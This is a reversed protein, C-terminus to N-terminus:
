TEDVQDDCDNDVGDGAVEAADPSVDPDDDDCDGCDLVYNSGPLDCSHVGDGPDGYGDEDLDVCWLDVPAEDITLDCDDDVENCREPAGLYVGPDADDCDGELAVWGDIPLCGQRVSAFDGQGDDDEDRYVPGPDAAACDGLLPQEVPDVIRWECGSLLFLLM